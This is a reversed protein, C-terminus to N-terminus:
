SHGNSVCLFPTVHSLCFWLWRHRFSWAATVGAWKLLGDEYRRNQDSFQNQGDSFENRKLGLNSKPKRVRPWLRELRAGDEHRVEWGVPLHIWCTGLSVVLQAKGRPSCAPQGDCSLLLAPGESCVSLLPRQTRLPCLAEGFVVLSFPRCRNSFSRDVAEWVVGM